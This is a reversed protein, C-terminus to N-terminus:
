LSVKNISIAASFVNNKEIVEMALHPDYRMTNYEIFGVENGKWLKEPMLFYFKKIWQGFHYNPLPPDSKKRFYGLKV